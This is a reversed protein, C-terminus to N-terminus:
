RPLPPLLAQALECTGPPDCHCNWIGVACVTPRATSRFCLYHDLPLSGPLGQVQCPLAALVVLPTKSPGEVQTRPQRTVSCLSCLSNAGLPGLPYGAPPPPTLRPHSKATLSAKPAAAAADDDDDAADDDDEDDDQAPPRGPPFPCRAFLCVM